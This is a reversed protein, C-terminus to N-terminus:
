YGIRSALGLIQDLRHKTERLDLESRTLEGRLAAMEREMELLASLPVMAEGEVMSGSASVIGGNEDHAILLCIRKM